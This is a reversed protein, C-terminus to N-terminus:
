YNGILLIVMVTLLSTNPNLVHVRIFFVCKYVAVVDETAAGQFEPNVSLFNKLQGNSQLTDYQGAM